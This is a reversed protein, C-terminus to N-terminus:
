KHLPEIHLDERGGEGERAERYFWQAFVISSRCTSCEGHVLVVDVYRCVAACNVTMVCM